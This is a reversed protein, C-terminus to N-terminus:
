SKTQKKPRVLRYGYLLAILFMIASIVYNERTFHDLGCVLGFTIWLLNTLTDIKPLNKM